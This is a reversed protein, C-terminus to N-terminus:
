HGMLYSWVFYMGELCKKMKRRKESDSLRSYFFEFFRNNHIKMSGIDIVRAVDKADRLISIFETYKLLPKSAEDTFVMKLSQELKENRLRDFVMLLMSVSESARIPHDYFAVCWWFEEIVGIDLEKAVDCFLDLLNKVSGASSNFKDMKEQNGFFSWLIHRICMGLVFSCFPELDKLTRHTSFRAPVGFSDGLKHKDVIFSAIIDDYVVRGFDEGAVLMFIFMDMSKVPFNNGVVLNDYPGGAKPQGKKGWLSLFELLNKFYAKSIHGFDSLLKFDDKVTSDSMDLSDYIFFLKCYIAEIPIMLFKVLPGYRDIFESCNMESGLLDALCTGSSVLCFDLNKAIEGIFDVIGNVSSLMLCKFFAFDEKGYFKGTGGILDGLRDKGNRMLADLVFPILKNIIADRVSGFVNKDTSYVFNRVGTKINGMFGPEPRNIFAEMPGLAKQVLPSNQFDKIGNFFYKVGREASALSSSSTLVSEVVHGSKTMVETAKEVATCGFKAAKTAGDAMMEIGKGLDCYNCISFFIVGVLLCYKGCRM